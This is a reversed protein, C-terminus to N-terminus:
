LSRFSRQPSCRFLHVSRVLVAETVVLMTEALGVRTNLNTRPKSGLNTRLNRGKGAWTGTLSMLSRSSFIGNCDESSHKSSPTNSFSKAQSYKWSMTSPMLPRSPSCVSAESGESASFLRKRFATSDTRSSLRTLCARSERLLVFPVISAAADPVCPGTLFTCSTLCFNRTRALLFLFPLCWCCRVCSSPFRTSVKGEHFLPLVGEKDNDKQWLRPPSEASSM